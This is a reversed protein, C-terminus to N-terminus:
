AWWCTWRYSRLSKIHRTEKWAVIDVGNKLDSLNSKRSIDPFEGNCHSNIIAWACYYSLRCSKEPNVCQRPGQLHSNLGLAGWYGPIDCPDLEWDDRWIGDRLISTNFYTQGLPVRACLGQLTNLRHNLEWRGSICKIDSLHSISYITYWSCM